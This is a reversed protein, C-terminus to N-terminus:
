YIGGEDMGEDDEDLYGEGNDFFNNAYDTGEDLEEDVQIFVIMTLM